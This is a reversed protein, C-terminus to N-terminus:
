SCSIIDSGSTSWCLCHLCCQLLADDLLLSPLESAFSKLQLLAVAACLLRLCVSPVDPKLQLSGKIGSNSDQILQAATRPPKAPDVATEDHQLAMLCALPQEGAGLECCLLPLASSETNSLHKANCSCFVCSVCANPFTLGVVGQNSQARRTNGAKTSLVVM